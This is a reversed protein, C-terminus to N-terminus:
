AGTTISDDTVGRARREALRAKQPEVVYKPDKTSEIGAELFGFRTLASAAMLSLGSAAAVIRNGGGVVAGIGGAIALREAWELKAGSPGEELPEAEVPHMNEKLARMAVVDGTVGLAALIRAPMTEAVPTTVMASGAAALSASSVFVFPLENRAANWTPTATDALLVATYAALPTAFLAAEFGAPAEAFRLLRRLPGLPLREGLLRDIENVATVGAGASYGSLIWSGLSMPSTVKLTRMMNLFREPRGLDAVLAAAGVGIAGLATLRTNRRLTARGTLQAGLALLGCGGAMGGLFLYLAIPSGWPAHKVIPRGYYSTFEVDEVMPMERSGDGGGRRGAFMGGRKGRGGPGGGRGGRRKKKGTDPPRYSDYESTM